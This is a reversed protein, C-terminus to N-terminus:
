KQGNLAGKEVYHVDATVFCLLNLHPCSPSMFSVSNETCQSHKPPPKTHSALFDLRVFILLFHIGALM